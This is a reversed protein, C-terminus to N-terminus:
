AEDLGKYVAMGAFLEIFATVVRGNYGRQRLFSDIDEILSFFSRKKRNM